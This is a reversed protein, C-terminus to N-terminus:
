PRSRWATRAGGWALDTLQDTLAERDLDGLEGDLWADAAARVMGVLSLGWVRAPAPDNGREVLAAAILEGIQRSMHGTAHAAEAAPDGSREAGVLPASVIFRYVEPDREVLQLYAGVAATILARPDEDLSSLATSGRLRQGLVKGVDRLVLEDVRAAVARYLGSRDTFHRYFVTKSTGAVSAIEDMGVSAGHARIAQLTAEVLEKRRQQRHAEWRASRGDTTTSM